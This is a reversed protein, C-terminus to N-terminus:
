TVTASECDGAAVRCIRAVVGLASTGRGFLESCVQHFAHRLPGPSNRLEFDSVGYNLWHWAVYSYRTRLPVQPPARLVILERPLLADPRQRRKGNRQRIRTERETSQKTPRSAM